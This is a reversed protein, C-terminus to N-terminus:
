RRFNFLAYHVTGDNLRVVLQRCGSWSKETKWVYIYQGTAADYSLSSSGATVTLEIDDSVFSSNCSMTRTSPSDTDLINLGFNGGLSFKVPIASGARVTNIIPPNDVPSFFGTFNYIVYYTIVASAGANGAVDVAGSCTATFTGIGVSNGGTVSVTANIAVGSAVGPPADTTTCGATPVSGLPYSTGNTPGTVSVVPLTKDIKIGSVTASATNGANDVATGLASLGAGESSLIQNPGCTEIDSLADACTFTVNVNTNNWGAANPAPSATGSITPATKDINIDSVTDSASNGAEDVVTGTVSQGAGETTVMTDPECTVDGSLNDGCEFSVIVDVNNWGNSNATPLRSGIITPATKDINIGGVTISAINGALDLAVGTVSQNEGDSTFIQDPSCADIDSLADDCTFDVTVDTNNWGAANADPSVASIITPATADRKITVSNSITGGASTASCTVTTGATDTSITTNGCNVSNSIASEPDTVAWSITVDSTYWGNSGLTGVVSPTIVPPTSDPPPLVHLIFTAPMPNYTGGGSDVVSVTITYNGPITSSFVTSKYNTTDNGSACASFILSNPTATIAAPTIIKVTANTGDAPNCGDGGTERILYNVTTSGGATFTDNGGAVVDNQVNDAYVIAGISCVAILICLITWKFSKPMNIVGERFIVYCSIFRQTIIRLINYL